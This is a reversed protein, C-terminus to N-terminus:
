SAEEGQQTMRSERDATESLQPLLSPLRVHVRTGGTPAQKVEGHGVWSKRANVCRPSVWARTGHRRLGVAM